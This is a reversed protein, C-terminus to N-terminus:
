PCPSATDLPAAGYSGTGCSNQARVLYWCGNGAAAPCAGAAETYPTDAVNNIACAATGPFGGAQLAALTGRAVDYSTSAGALSDESTWSVRVNGAAPVNKVVNANTVVTPAAWVGNDANNCDCAAGFGDGDTDVGSGPVNPCTDTGDNPILDGDPDPCYRTIIGDRNVEFFGVNGYALTSADRPDLTGYRLPIQVVTSASGNVPVLTEVNEPITSSLTGEHESNDRVAADPIGDMQAQYSFEDGPAWQAQNSKASPVQPAYANAALGFAQIVNAAGRGSGVVLHSLPLSTNPVNSAYYSSLSTTDRVGFIAVRPVVCFDNTSPTPQPLRCNADSTCAAGSFFCTAPTLPGLVSTVDAATLISSWSTRCVSVGDYNAKPGIDVILEDGAPSYVVYILDGPAYNPNNSPPGAHAHQMGVALAALGLAAVLARPRRVPNRDHNM